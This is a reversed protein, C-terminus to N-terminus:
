LIWKGIYHVKPNGKKLEYLIPIDNYFTFKLSGVFNNHSSLGKKKHLDPGGGFYIEPDFLLNQISGPIDIIKMQDDLVVKVVRVDHFITLNHWYNGTLEDGLVISIVGEGFDMEISLSHNKIAAAIYQLKLSEGSAYFLASDDYRTKFMLSIRTMPSHVRDKWDYIRYSVYSSGRLTLVTAAARLSLPASFSCFLFSFLVLSLTHTSHFSHFSEAVYVCVSRRIDLFECM